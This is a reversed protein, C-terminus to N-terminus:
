QMQPMVRSFHSSLSLTPRRATCTYNDEVRMWEDRCLLRKVTAMIMVTKQRSCKMKVGDLKSELPVNLSSAGRSTKGLHLEGEERGM